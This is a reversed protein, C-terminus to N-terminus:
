TRLKAEARLYNAIHKDTVNTSAVSVVASTQVERKAFKVQSVTPVLPTNKYVRYHVKPRWLLIYLMVNLRTRTVMLYKINHAHRNGENDLLSFAHATNDHLGHSKVMDKWIIEYVVCNELFFIPCSTHTKIQESVKIM